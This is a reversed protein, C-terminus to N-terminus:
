FILSDLAEAVDEATDLISYFMVLNAFFRSGLDLSFLTFLLLDQASGCTPM